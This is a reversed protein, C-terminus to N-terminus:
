KSFVVVTNLFQMKCCVHSFDLLYSLSPYILHKYGSFTGISSDIGESSCLDFLSPRKTKILEFGHFSSIKTRYIYKKNIRPFFMITDHGKSICCDVDHCMWPGNEHFVSKFVKTTTTTSPCLHVIRM